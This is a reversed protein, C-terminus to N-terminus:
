TSASASDAPSLVSAKQRRLTISSQSKGVRLCRCIHEGVRVPRLPELALSHFEHVVSRQGDGIEYSWISGVVQPRGQDTWIFFAGHTGQLGTPHTYKHVPERVLKLTPGESGALEFEYHAAARKYYEIWLRHERQADEPTPSRASEAGQEAPPQWAAAPAATVSWCLVAALLPTTIRRIASPAM